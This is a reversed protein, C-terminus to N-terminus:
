NETEKSKESDACDKIHAQQERHHMALMEIQVKAADELAIRDETDGEPLSELQESIAALERHIGAMENEGDLFELHNCPM